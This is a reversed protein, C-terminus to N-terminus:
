VKENKKIVHDQVEFIIKYLNHSRNGEDYIQKRKRIVVRENNACIIEFGTKQLGVHKNTLMGANDTYHHTAGSVM